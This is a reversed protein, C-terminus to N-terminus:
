IDGPGRRLEEVLDEIDEHDKVIVCRFGYGTLNKKWWEQLRSVRGGKPRKLEVFCVRGGPLLVIRDPVGSWGPCVWKMCLGGIETVAKVLSAEIVKERDTM